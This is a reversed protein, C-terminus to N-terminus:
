NKLASFIKRGYKFRGLKKIKCNLNTCLTTAKHNYEYKSNSLTDFILEGGINLNESFYKQIKSKLKKGEIKHIWNVLIIVDYTKNIQDKNFDFKKTKIKGGNNQFFSLFRLGKLVNSDYDFGYKEKFRLRRLIDGTGCGIELVSIKEQRKNLHAVIKQAYPRDSFFSDHWPNYNFYKRILVFIVVIFRQTYSNLTTKYSM